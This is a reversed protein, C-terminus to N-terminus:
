RDDGIRPEDSRVAVSAKFNLPEGDFVCKPVVAVGDTPTVADYNIRGWDNPGVDGDIASTNVELADADTEVVAADYMREAAEDTSPDRYLVHLRNRETYGGIASPNRELRREYCLKTAVFRDYGELVHQDRGMRIWDAPVPAYFRDPETPKDDTRKDPRTESQSM